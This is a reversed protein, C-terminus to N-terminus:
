ASFYQHSGLLIRDVAIAALMLGMLRQIGGVAMAFGFHHQLRYCLRVVAACVAVACSLAFATQLWHGSQMASVLLVSAMAAPGATYAVASASTETGAKVRNDSAPAPTPFVMSVALLFLILGSSVQLSATSLPLRHIMTRGLLSIALLMCLSCVCVKLIPLLSDQHVIDSADASAAHLAYGCALPNLVLLLIVFAPFFQSDM